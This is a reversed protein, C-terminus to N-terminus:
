ALAAGAAGAPPARARAIGKLPIECPADGLKRQPKLAGMAWSPISPVSDPYFVKNKRMLFPLLDTLYRQTESFERHAILATDEELWVSAGGYHDAHAHTVVVSHIPGDDVARLLAAHDDATFPLGADVIVNGASTVVM